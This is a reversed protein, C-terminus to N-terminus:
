NGQYSFYSDDLNPNVEISDFNFSNVLKGDKDYNELKEPFRIGDIFQEGVEVLRVGNHSTSSLIDGTAKNITREYFIGYSHQFKIVLADKGEYQLSPEIITVEMPFIPSGKFFYLNEIAEIVMSNYIDLGMIGQRIKGTAKTKQEVFGQYGDMSRRMIMEDNEIEVVQLFPKKYAVLFKNITGDVLNITGQYRLTEINELTSETALHKRMKAVAEDPTMAGLISTLFFSFLLLLRLSKM